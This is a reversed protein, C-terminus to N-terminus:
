SLFTGSSFSNGLIQFLSSRESIKRGRKERASVLYVKRNKRPTRDCGLKSVEKGGCGLIYLLIFKNLLYYPLVVVYLGVAM